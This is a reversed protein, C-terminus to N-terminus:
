EQQKGPRVFVQHLGVVDSHTGLGKPGRLRREALAPVRGQLVQPVLHALLVRPHGGVQLPQQPHLLAAAVEDHEHLGGSGLVEGAFVTVDHQVPVVDEVPYTNMQHAAGQQVLGHQVKNIVSTTQASSDSCAWM